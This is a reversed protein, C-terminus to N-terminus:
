LISLSGTFTGLAQVVAAIVGVVKKEVDMAGAEAGALALSADILGDAAAVKIDHDIDRVVRQGVLHVAVRIVHGRVVVELVQLADDPCADHGRVADIDNHGEEIFAALVAPGASFGQVAGRHQHFQFLHTDRIEDGEVGMIGSDLVGDRQGAEVVEHRGILEDLGAEVVNRIHLEVLVAQHDDARVFTRHVAGDVDGVDHAHIDAHEVFATIVGLDHVSPVGDHSMFEQAGADGALIHHDDVVHDGGALAHQVGCPIQFLAACFTDNDARGEAEEGVSQIGEPLAM